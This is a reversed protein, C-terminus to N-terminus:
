VVMLAHVQWFSFAAKVMLKVKYVVFIHINKVFIARQNIIQELLILNKLLLQLLLAQLLQFILVQGAIVRKRM